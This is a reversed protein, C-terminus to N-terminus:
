RPPRRKAPRGKRPRHLLFALTRSDFTPLSAPLLQKQLAAVRKNLDRLTLRRGHAKEFEQIEKRLVESRYTLGFKAKLGDIYDTMGRRNLKAPRGRKPKPPKSASQHLDNLRTLRAALEERARSTRETYRYMLMYHACLQILEDKSRNARRIIAVLRDHETVAASDKM